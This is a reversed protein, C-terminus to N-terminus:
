GVVGWFGLDLWICIVSCPEWLDSPCHWQSLDDPVISGFWCIGPHSFKEILLLQAKSWGLQSLYQQQAFPPSHTMSVRGLPFNLTDLPSKGKTGQLVVQRQKGLLERAFDSDKSPKLNRARQSLERGM